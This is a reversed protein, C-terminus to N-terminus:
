PIDKKEVPTGIEVHGVPVAPVLKPHSTTETGFEPGGAKALPSVVDAMFYGTSPLSMKAKWLIVKKKERVFPGYAYATVVIFYREDRTAEMFEAHGYSELPMVDIATRGLSLAYRQTQNVANPIDTPAIRGWAFGIVMDPKPHAGDMVLYNQKALEPALAHVIDHPTPLNDQAQFDGYQRYGQMVPLYYAPKEASPHPVKRGEPSMDVVVTVDADARAFVPALLVAALFFRFAGM